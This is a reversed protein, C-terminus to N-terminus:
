EDPTMADRLWEPVSVGEDGGVKVCVRQEYATFALEDGISGDYEFRVSTEGVRPTLGITVVDGADLPRRFQAGVDVIPLGIGETGTLRWFPYGISELYEDATHHVADVIRPYHAIGFPDTDAFRVTWEREYAPDGDAAFEDTEDM